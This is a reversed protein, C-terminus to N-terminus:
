IWDSVLVDEDELVFPDEDVEVREFTKRAPGDGAFSEENDFPVSIV